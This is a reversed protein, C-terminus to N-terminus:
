ALAEQPAAPAGTVLEGDSAIREFDSLSVIHDLSMRMFMTGVRYEGLPTPPLGAARELVALPLNAGAGASMYCWAPFRPNVELLHYEGERDRILEVECPGRWRSAAMFRRTLELVRGDGIAVGAWGKGKDTLLMKKMPVAGVLGGEGDGVAVVDVEDGRVEAQVLAPLGWRAVMRHFAGVAEDVSRAREAGYYLGKVFWPFPLEEHLRYLERADNVLRTAPVRLDARRGLEELHAKSRLEFQEPTPIFRGVGLEDLVPALAMFLPLEVDLNPLVVDLGVRAHVHRLRAEFAELGQSPYPLLFVDDVLDRAYVGPELADYALGVIRGRFGPHLRLARVVAIGPAPNDTISLGTVAVTLPRM